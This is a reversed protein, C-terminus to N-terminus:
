RECASKENCILGRRRGHVIDRRDRSLDGPNTTSLFNLTEQPKGFPTM